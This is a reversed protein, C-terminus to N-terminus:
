EGVSRDYAVQGDSITMDVAVSNIDNSALQRLDTEFITVDGLKGPELSGKIGEEFSAYAGNWTYARVATELDVREEPWIETGNIDTRNMMMGLGTTASVPVVPSDTSAAAIIGQEAFTRMAVSYRLRESGVNQLYASTFYYLFSTGPIPVAGLRRIRHVTEFDIISCHEIRHRTNARPFKAQAEEYADLILDIAADGIAHIGIQFGL